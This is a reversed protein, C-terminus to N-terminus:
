MDSLNEPYCLKVDEDWYYRCVDKCKKIILQEPFMPFHICIFPFGYKAIDWVKCQNNERDLYDCGPNKCCEACDLCRPNTREKRLSILRRLEQRGENTHLMWTLVEKMEDENM